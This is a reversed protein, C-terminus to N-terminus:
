CIFFLDVFIICFLIACKTTLIDDKMERFKYLKTQYFGIKKSKLFTIISRTNYISYFVFLIYISVELYILDIRIIFSINFIYKETELFYPPTQVILGSPIVRRKKGSSPENQADRLKEVSEQKIDCRIVQIHESHARSNVLAM